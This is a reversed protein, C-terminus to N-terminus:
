VKQIDEEVHGEPIEGRSLYEYGFGVASKPLSLLSVFARHRLFQFIVVPWGLVVALFPYALVGGCVRSLAWSFRPADIWSEYFGEKDGDRFVWLLLHDDDHNLAGIVPASLAKSLASGVAEIDAVHQEDCEQDFVVTNGSGGEILFARRRLEKVAVLVEASEAGVVTFNTYFNGV